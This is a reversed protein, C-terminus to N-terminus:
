GGGVPPLFALVCEPKLKTEMGDLFRVNRGDLLISIYGAELSAGLQQGLEGHDRRIAALADAVSASEGVDLILQRRGSEEGLGGFLKITIRM